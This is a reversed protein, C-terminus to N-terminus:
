IVIPDPVLPNNVVVSLSLCYEPCTHERSRLELAKEQEIAVCFKSTWSTMDMEVCHTAIHYNVKSRPRVTSGKAPGCAVSAIICHILVM